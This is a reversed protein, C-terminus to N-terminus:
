SISIDFSSDPVDLPKKFDDFIDQPLFLCFFLVDFYVDSCCLTASSRLMSIDPLLMSSVDTAHQSVNDFNISINPVVDSCRPTSSYIATISIGPSAGYRNSLFMWRGFLRFMITFLFSLSPNVDHFDRVIPM